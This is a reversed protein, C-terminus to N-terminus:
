SRAHEVAERINRTMQSVNIHGGDETIFWRDKDESRYSGTVRTNYDTFSVRHSDSFVFVGAVLSLTSGVSVDTEEFYREANRIESESVKRLEDPNATPDIHPEIIHM